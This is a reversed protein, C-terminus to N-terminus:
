PVAEHWIEGEEGRRLEEDGYRRLMRAARRAVRRGGLSAKRQRRLGDVTAVAPAAAAAPPRRDRPPPPLRAGNQLRLTRRWANTNKTDITPSPRLLRFHAGSVDIDLEIWRVLEPPRPTRCDIRRRGSAFHSPAVARKEYEIIRVDSGDIHAVAGLESMFNTWRDGPSTRAAADERMMFSRRATRSPACSRATTSTSSGVARRHRHRATRRLARAANDCVRRCKGGGGRGECVAAAQVGADDSTPAPPPSPRSEPLHRRSGSASLPTTAAASSPRASLRRLKPRWRALRQQRRRRGVCTSVLSKNPSAGCRPSHM